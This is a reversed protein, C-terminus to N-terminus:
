VWCPVGQVRELQTLEEPAAPAPDLLSAEM